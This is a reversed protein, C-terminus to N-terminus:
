TFLTYRNELILKLPICPCPKDPPFATTAETSVNYLADSELETGPELINQPPPTVPELMFRVITSFNYQQTRLKCRIHM